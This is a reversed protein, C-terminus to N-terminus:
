IVKYNKAIRLDSFGKATKTVKEIDEIALEVTPSRVYSSHIYGARKM